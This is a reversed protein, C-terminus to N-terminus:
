SFCQTIRDIIEKVEPSLEFGVELNKVPIGIVIVDLKGLVSNLYRLTSRMPILHSTISINMENVESPDLIVISKTFNDLLVADFIALKELRREVIEHICNELGHECIIIQTGAVELDTLKDCLELAARDDSKLYTGICIIAYSQSALEKIYECVDNLSIVRM